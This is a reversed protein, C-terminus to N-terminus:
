KSGCVKFWFYLSINQYISEYKIEIKICFLYLKVQKYELRYKQPTDHPIANGGRTWTFNLAPSGSGKCYLRGTDGSNSAAKALHPSLDM